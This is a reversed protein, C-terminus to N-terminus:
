IATVFCSVKSTIGTPIIHLNWIIIMPPTIDYIELFDDKLSHNQPILVNLTYYDKQKLM